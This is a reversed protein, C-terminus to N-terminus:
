FSRPRLAQPMDLSVMPSLMFWQLGGWRRTTEKGAIVVFNDTKKDRAVMIMSPNRLGKAASM